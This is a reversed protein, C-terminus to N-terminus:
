DAKKTNVPEAPPGAHELKRMYSELAQFYGRDFDGHLGNKAQQSFERRLTKFNKPTKEIKSLYLYKDETSKATLLLGELAKLYGKASETSPLTARITDLEKEADAIRREILAQFLRETNFTPTPEPKPAPKEAGENSKTKKPSIKSM